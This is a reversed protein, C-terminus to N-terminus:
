NDDESAVFVSPDEYLVLMMKGGREVLEFTSILGNSGLIASTPAETLFLTMRTPM